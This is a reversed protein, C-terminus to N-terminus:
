DNPLCRVTLMQSEPIVRLPDFVVADPDYAVERAGTLDAQYLNVNRLDARALNWGSLDLRTGLLGSSCIFDQHAELAIRLHQEITLETM